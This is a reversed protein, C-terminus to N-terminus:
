TSLYALCKSSTKCRLPTLGMMGVQRLSAVTHHPFGSNAVGTYRCTVTRSMKYCLGYITCRRQQKRDVHCNQLAEASMYPQLLRNQACPEFCLLM